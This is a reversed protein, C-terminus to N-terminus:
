STHALTRQRKSPMTRREFLSLLTTEFIKKHEGRNRSIIWKSSCIKSIPQNLWWSTINTIEWSKLIGIKRYPRYRSSETVFIGHMKWSWAVHSVKAVRRAVRPWAFSIISLCRPTLNSPQNLSANIATENSIMKKQHRFIVTLTFM